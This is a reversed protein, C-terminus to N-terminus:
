NKDGENFKEKNKEIAKQWKERKEKDKTHILIHCNRCLTIGNDVNYRLEPYEYYPKIHHAEIIGGKDFGCHQCTYKDRRFVSDRWKRYEFAAMDLNRKNSVGGKWNPNEEGRKAKKKVANSIKIKEEETRPIGKRPSKRGLAKERIKLKSELTHHKGKFSSQISHRDVRQKVRTCDKCKTSLGDVRSKDSIFYTRDVFKKCGSCWKLGNNIQSMYYEYTIKYRKCFVLIAGKTTQAM